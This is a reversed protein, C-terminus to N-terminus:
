RITPGHNNPSRVSNNGFAPSKAPIFFRIKCGQKRIIKVRHSSLSCNSCHNRTAMCAYPHGLSSPSTLRYSWPICLHSLDTLGIFLLTFIALGLLASHTQASPTGCESAQSNYRGNIEFTMNRVMKPTAITPDDRSPFPHHSPPIPYISPSTSSTCAHYEGEEDIQVYM